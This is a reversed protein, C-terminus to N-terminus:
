ENDRGLVKDIQILEDLFQKFEKSGNELPSRDEAPKRGEPTYNLPTILKDGEERDLPEFGLLKRCENVTIVGYLGGIKARQVQLEADQPIPNIFSLTYNESNIIPFLKRNFLSELKRLRPKICYRAFSKEQQEATNKNVGESYLLSTPIKFLACIDEKTWKSQEIFSSSEPDISIRDFKMGGWLIAIAFAKSLGGFKSQWQKEIAEVQKDNLRQETSLTGAPIAGNKFFQVIYKKSFLHIDFETSIKSLPSEGRNVKNAGPIFDFVIEDPRFDINKSTTDITYNFGELTINDDKYVPEIAWSPVPWLQVPRGLKDRAIYIYREGFVENMVVLLYVFDYWDMLPNPRNLLKYLYDRKPNVPKDGKELKWENQAITEAILTVCSYVISKYGVEATDRPSLNDSLGKENRLNLLANLWKVGIQQENNKIAKDSM